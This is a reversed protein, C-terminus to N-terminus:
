TGEDNDGVLETGSPTLNSECVPCTYLTLLWSFGLVIGEWFRLTIVSDYNPPKENSPRLPM